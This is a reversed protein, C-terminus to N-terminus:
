SNRSGLYNFSFYWALKEDPSPYHSSSRLFSPWAWTLHAWAAWTGPRTPGMLHHRPCGRASPSKVLVKTKGSFLRGLKERIIQPRPPPPAGSERRLPDSRAAGSSQLPPFDGGDDDGRRRSHSSAEVDGDDGDGAGDGDDDGHDM